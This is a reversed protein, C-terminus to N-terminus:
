NLKDGKDHSIVTASGSDGFLLENIEDGKKITKSITIIILM